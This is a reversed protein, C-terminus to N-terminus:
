DESGLMLTFVPQGAEDLHAAARVALNNGGVPLQYIRVQATPSDLPRSPILGVSAFLLGYLVEKLREDQPNFPEGPALANWLGATMATPVQLRACVCATETIDLLVGDRLADARTYGFLPDCGFQTAVGLGDPM